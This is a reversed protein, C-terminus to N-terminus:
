GPKGYNRVLYDVITKADEPAWIMVRYPLQNAKATFDYQVAGPLVFTAPARDPSLESLSNLYEEIWTYRSPALTSRSM